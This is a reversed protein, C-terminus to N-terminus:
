AGPPNEMMRRVIDRYVEKDEPAILENSELGEGFARLYDSNILYTSAKERLHASIYGADPTGAEPQATEMPKVM